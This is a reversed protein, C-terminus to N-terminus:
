RASVRWNTTDVVRWTRGDHRRVVLSTGKLALTFEFVPTQDTARWPLGICHAIGDVTDLAHIFPYGGPNAYLTYAWRGDATSVRDVAWGQMVWSKQTKDAIRGPMLTHTALDYARVVYHQVDQASTHQILYLRSADPSLADFGFTGRLTISDRTALDHADLIVFSSTKEIGVNQLVFASGDHFLGAALGSQTVTPIGYAGAITRKELTAGGSTGIASVITDAGAKQAVFHVSGDLSLLGSGGQVAFPAPYAAFAVPVLALGAVAALLVALRRFM